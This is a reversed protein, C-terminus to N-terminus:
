AGAAALAAELGRVCRAVEDYCRRVDNADGTYPDPIELSRRPGDPDYAALLRLRSRASPFRALFEAENAFDMIVVLDTAAVVDNALFSARHGSLDIGRELAAQVGRPDALRGARAHLGASGVSLGPLHDGGVARSLLAAAMPSRLINGHCVFVIRRPRVTLSPSTSVAAGALRRVCQVLFVRRAKPELGALRRVFARVSAPVITPLARRLRRALELPMGSSRPSTTM